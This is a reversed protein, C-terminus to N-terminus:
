VNIKGLENIFDPSYEGPQIRPNSKRRMGAAAIASKVLAAPRSVMFQNTPNSAWKQFVDQILGVGFEGCASKLERAGKLWDAYLPSKRAPITLGWKVSVAVIYDRVDEPFHGADPTGNPTSIFALMGDILDGRRVADTRRAGPETQVPEPIPLAVVTAPLSRVRIKSMKLEARSDLFQKRRELGDIDVATEDTQLSYLAGNNKAPNNGSIKIVIKYEVLGALAKRAAVLSLGTGRDLIEGSRSVIGQTIQTM